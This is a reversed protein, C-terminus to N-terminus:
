PRQFAAQAARARPHIVCDPAHDNRLGAAQLFAHLTTAGVFAWGRRKLDKSLAVAELSPGPHPTSDAAAYRRFYAALSGEARILAQAQRANTVTAAIKGRHRIIGADHLLRQQDAETFAAVADIEFHHFAARFGDRRALITRWSLGSQFAELSLKEFLHRDDTVPFGWETDHYAVYDPTAVCWHCRPQGDPGPRTATM